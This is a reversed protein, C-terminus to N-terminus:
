KKLYIYLESMENKADFDRFLIELASEVILTKTIKKEGKLKRRLKMWTDDLQHLIDESLNFTTKERITKNSVNDNSRKGVRSDTNIANNNVQEIGMLNGIIDPTNKRINNM